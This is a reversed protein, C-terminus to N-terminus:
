EKVLVVFPKQDNKSWDVGYCKLSRMSDRSKFFMDMWREGYRSTDYFVVKLLQASPYRDSDARFRKEPVNESPDYIGDYNTACFAVMAESTKGYSSVWYDLYFVIDKLNEYNALVQEVTYHPILSDYFDELSYM